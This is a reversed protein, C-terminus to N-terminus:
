QALKEFLPAHEGFVKDATKEVVHSDIYRVQKSGKLAEVFEVVKGQENEPLRTIEQIIEAANMHLLM